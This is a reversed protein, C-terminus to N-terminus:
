TTSSSQSGGCILTDRWRPSGVFDSDDSRVTGSLLEVRSRRLFASAAWSSRHRLGDCSRQEIMESPGRPPAVAWASPLAKLFMASRSPKSSTVKWVSRWVNAVRCIRAPTFTLVRKTSSPAYRGRWLPACRHGRRRGNGRVDAPTGCALGRAVPPDFRRVVTVRDASKFVFEARVSRSEFEIVKARGAGGRECPARDARRSRGTGGLPNTLRYTLRYRGPDSWNRSGRECRSAGTM